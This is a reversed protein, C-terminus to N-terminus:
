IKKKMRAKTEIQRIREVTDGYIGGIERLTKKEEDRLRVIELERAKLNKASKEVVIDNGSLKYLFYQKIKPAKNKIGNLTFDEPKEIEEGAKTDNFIGCGESNTRYKEQFIVEAGTQNEKIGIVEWRYLNDEKSLGKISYFIKEKTSSM